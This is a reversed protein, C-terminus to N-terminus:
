PADPAAAVSRAVAGPAGGAHRWPPVGPVGAHPPCQTDQPGPQHAPLDCAPGSAPQGVGAFVHRLRAGRGGDRPDDLRLGARPLVDAAGAAVERRAPGRRTRVPLDATSRESASGTATDAAAAPGDDGSPLVLRATDACDTGPDVAAPQERTRRPRVG